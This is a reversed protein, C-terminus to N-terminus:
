ERSISLEKLLDELNIHGRNSLTLGDLKLGSLDVEGNVIKFAFPQSTESFQIAFYKTETKRCESPSIDVYKPIQKICPNSGVIQTELKHMRERGANKEDPCRATYVSWQSKLFSSPSIMLTSDPNAITQKVMRYWYDDESRILEFSNAQYPKDMLVLYSSGLRFHRAFECNPTVSTRAQFNSWFRGDLHLNFDTDFENENPTSFADFALELTKDAKGKLIEIIKFTTLIRNNQLEQRIAKAIVINKNALIQEKKSVFENFTKTSCAYVEVSFSAFIVFLSLLLNMKMHKILEKQWSVNLSLYQWLIVM